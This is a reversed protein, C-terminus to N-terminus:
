YESHNDLGKVLQCGASTGIRTAGAEVVKVMDEFTRVGGAAKVQINEGVNEKM